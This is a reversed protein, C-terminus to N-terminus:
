PSSQQRGNGRQRHGAVAAALEDIRRKAELCPEQSLTELAEEELPRKIRRCM